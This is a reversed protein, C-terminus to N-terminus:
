RHFQPLSLSHHSPSSLSSFTPEGHVILLVDKSITLPSVTGMTPSITVACFYDGGDSEMLSSFTLRQEVSIVATVASGVTASPPVSGGYRTWMFSVDVNNILDTAVIFVTCSISLQNSVYPVRNDVIM